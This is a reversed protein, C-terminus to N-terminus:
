DQLEKYERVAKQTVTILRREDESLEPRWIEFLLIVRVQDSNNWAEHEISDDFILMEGEKWAREENGVRLAGCNEPVILPLHCILRTNLLGNHPPIRADPALRSFLAMPAQDTIEPLPAAELAKVTEPFLAAIEPVLRGYDWLFLASWKDNDDLGEDNQGHKADESKVYPSFRWPEKMVAALEERIRATQQEIVPIWDFRDREYFQIQPLGPYYYRSPQQYYIEKSGFMLELSERFRPYEASSAFDNARLKEMLFSRYEGAQNTIAKQAKALELKIDAPVDPVNGALKLAFKQFELASRSQGQQILLDAKLLVARLNRPELELSKDTASLSAAHDGLRVCALALGLWHMTGAEGAAIVQEFGIKARTSDGAHLASFSMQTLQQINIGAANM